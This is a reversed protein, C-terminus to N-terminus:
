HAYRAAIWGPSPVASARQVLGTEEPPPGTAAARLGTPQEQRRMPEGRLRAWEERLHVPEERVAGPPERVETPQGPLDVSKLAACRRAPHGGELTPLSSHRPAPPDSCKTEDSCVM